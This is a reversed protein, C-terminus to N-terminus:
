IEQYRTVFPYPLYPEGNSPNLVLSSNGNPDGDDLYQQFPRGAAGFFIVTGQSKITKLFKIIMQVKEDYQSDAVFGAGIIDQWYMLSRSAKYQPSQMRASGAIFCPGCWYPGTGIGSYPADPTALRGQGAIHIIDQTAINVLFVGLVKSNIPLGTFIPDVYDLPPTGFTAQVTKLEFYGNVDRTGDIYVAFYATGASGAPSPLTATQNNVYGRQNEYWMNGGNFSYELSPNSGSRVVYFKFQTGLPFCRSGTGGAAGFFVIRNQDHTNQFNQFLNLMAAYTTSTRYATLVQQLAAAFDAEAYGEFQFLDTFSAWTELLALDTPSRMNGTFLDATPEIHSNARDQNIMEQTFNLLEQSITEFFLHVNYANVYVMASNVGSVTVFYINSGRPVSVSFSFTGDPNSTLSAAQSINGTANQVNLEVLYSGPPTVAGSLQVASAQPFGMQAVYGTDLFTTTVVNELFSTIWNNTNTRYVNYSVAGPAAAWVLNVSNNPGVVSVAVEAMLGETEIESNMYVPAVAYTYNDPALLAGVTDEPVSSTFSIGPKQTKLGIASSSKDYIHSDVLNQLARQFYRNTAYPLSPPNLIVTLPM